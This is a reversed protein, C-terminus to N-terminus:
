MLTRTLHPIFILVCVQNIRSTRSQTTSQRTLVKLIYNKTLLTFQSTNEPTDAIVQWAQPQARSSAHGFSSHIHACLKGSGMIQVIHLGSMWRSGLWNRSRSTAGHYSREDMTRHTTPDIRWPPGMSRNRTGALTGRSTYCYGHYTSDLRHSPAYILVRAALRFSYSMHRCRTEGTAIQIIM